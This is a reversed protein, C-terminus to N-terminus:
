EQERKRIVVATGALSLVAVAALAVATSGTKPAEPETDDAPETTDPTTPAPADYDYLLLEAFSVADKNRIELRYYTYATPTDVAYLGTQNNTNGLGGMGRDVHDIITYTVGDTSGLLTWGLPTRPYASNDAATIFGYYDITTAETTKWEIIASNNSTGVKTDSDGDLINAVAGDGWTDRSITLTSADIKGVLSTGDTLVTKTFSASLMDSKADVTTTFHLVDSLTEATAAAFAESTNAEAYKVVPKVVQGGDLELFAASIQYTKGAELKVATPYWSEVDNDQWTAYAWLEYARTTTTGDIIDIMLGNDVDTAGFLYYGTKDVTFSGSYLNVYSDGAYSNTYVGITPVITAAGVKQSAALLGDITADYNFNDEICQAGNGGAHTGNAGTGKYNDGLATKFVKTYPNVDNGSADGWQDLYSHYCDVSLNFTLGLDSLSKYETSNPLYGGIDLAEGGALELFWADVQYTQGAKLEITGLDSVLYQEGNDFYSTGWYEYKKVGDIKLVFGNDLKHGVLTFTIDEKATLTGTWNLLYNNDNAAGLSKAFDGNYSSFGTQDAASGTKTSWSLLESLSQDFKKTGTYGAYQSGSDSGLILSYCDDWASTSAILEYSTMSLGSVSEDATEEASASLIGLSAVMSTALAFSLIKKM